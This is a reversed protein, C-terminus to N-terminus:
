DDPADDGDGLVVRGIICTIDFEDPEPEPVKSSPM